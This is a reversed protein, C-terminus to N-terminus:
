EDEVGFVIKLDQNCHKIVDECAQLSPLCPIANLQSYTCTRNNRAKKDKHDFYIYHKLQELDKWDPEFYWNDWCYENIRGLAKLYKLHAEAEEKTKFCNAQQYHSLDVIHDTFEDVNVERWDDVYCYPEGFEPKWRGKKKVPEIEQKVEYKKILKKAEDEPIDLTIKM